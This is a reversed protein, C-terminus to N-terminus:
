KGEWSTLYGFKSCHLVLSAHAVLVARLTTRM